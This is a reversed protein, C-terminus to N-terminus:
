LAVLTIQTGKPLPQVKICNAGTTWCADAVGNSLDMVEFHRGCLTRMVIHGIASQLPHETIKALQGPQMTSMMIPEMFQVGQCVFEFYKDSM